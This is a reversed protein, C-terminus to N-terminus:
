ENKESRHELSFIEMKGLTTKHALSVRTTHQRILCKYECQAWSEFRLLRVVKLTSPTSLPPFAFLFIRYFAFFRIDRSRSSLPFYFFTYLFLAHTLIWVFELKGGRCDAAMPSLPDQRYKERKAKKKTKNIQWNKQWIENPMTWNFEWSLSYSTSAFSLLLLLFLLFNYVHFNQIFM